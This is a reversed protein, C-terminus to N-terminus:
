SSVESSFLFLSLSRGGKLYHGMSNELLKKWWGLKLCFHPPRGCAKPFFDSCFFAFVGIVLFIPVHFIFLRWSIKLVHQPLGRALQLPRASLETDDRAAGVHLVDVPKYLPLAALVVQPGIEGFVRVASNATLTFSDPCLTPLCNM